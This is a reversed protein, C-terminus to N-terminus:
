EPQRDDDALAAILEKWEANCPESHLTKQTYAEAARAVRLLRAIDIEHDNLRFGRVNHETIATEDAEIWEAM